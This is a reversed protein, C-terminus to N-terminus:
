LLESEFDVYDGTTEAGPAFSSLRQFSNWVVVEDLKGGEVLMDRCSVVKASRCCNTITGV